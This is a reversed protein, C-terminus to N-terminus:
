PTWSRRSLRRVVGVRRATGTLLYGELWGECCHESLVELVRGDPSITTTSPFPPRSAAATTADFVANLRNSNTEDPCFLRFNKPNLKIVDRLFEGSSERRKPLSRAPVPCKSRTIRSIRCRCAREVAPRWQRASESGHPLRREARSDALEPMSDAWRCRFLKEPQYSKMWAELMQLQEPNERVDALPVQHARFTGEIPLGDVEKPGTWGKPTRLVIMPWTPVAKLGTRAPTTRFRASKPTARTSRLRLNRICRRPITAKSSTRNTDMARRLAADLEEDSTRAEVTPRSIKYGNLHLIPLVAGDRAPNLFRNSKWSGELPCTEQRATESSAPSSSRRIISPRESRTCFRTASNAARTSRVPCTRAATAAARRRAHLIRSLAAENRCRGADSRSPGALLHGRSLSAREAGARRPRPRFYLHHQRAKRPHPSESARLHFEPGAVHGLPGAPAAQHARAHAARELAPERASYIQGVTLYNAAQWYRQLRAVTDDSLPKNAPKPPPPTHDSVVATSLKADFAFM